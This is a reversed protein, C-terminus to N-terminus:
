FRIGGYLGVQLKPAGARTTDDGNTLGGATKAILPAAV